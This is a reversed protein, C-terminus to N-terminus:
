VEIVRELWAEMEDPDWNSTRTARGDLAPPMPAADGGRLRFGRICKWGNPRLREEKLLFFAKIQWDVWPDAHTNEGILVLMKTSREFRRLLEERILLSAADDPGPPKGGSGSGDPLPGAPDFSDVPRESLRGVFQAALQQRPDAPQYVVFLSSRM